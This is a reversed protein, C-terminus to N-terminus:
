QKAENEKDRGEAPKREKENYLIKKNKNCVCEQMMKKKMDKLLKGERENKNNNKKKKVALDSEQM